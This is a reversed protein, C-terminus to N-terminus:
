DRDRTKTVRGPVEKDFYQQIVLFLVLELDKRLNM